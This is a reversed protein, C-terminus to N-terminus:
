IEADNPSIIESFSFIMVTEASDGSTFIIYPLFVPSDNVM